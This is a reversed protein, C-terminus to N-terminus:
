GLRAQFRILDALPKGLVPVAMVLLADLEPVLRPDVPRLRGHGPWNRVERAATARLGEDADHLLRPSVTLRTWPDRAACIRFAAMRVRPPQEPQLLAELEDKDIEAARESLAAAAHRVVAPAPDTLRAALAVVPGTGFRRLARVAAVRGRTNPHTLWPTILDADATTGSEGLGAIVGPAPPEAAILRRYCDAPDGGGVCEDDRVHRREPARQQIVGRDIVIAQTDGRGAPGGDARRRCSGAPLAVAAPM